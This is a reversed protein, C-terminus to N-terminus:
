GELNKYIDDITQSYDTFAKPNKLEKIGVKERRNSPLQYKSDFTDKVHLYIKVIDPRQHKILSLLAKTKGSGSSSITIILYLIYIRYPHIPIYPWIPNHNIKVSREYNKM